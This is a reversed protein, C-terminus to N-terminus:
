ERNHFFQLIKRIRVKDKATLKQCQAYDKYFTLRQKKSLNYKGLKDLCALDKIIRYELFPRYWKMGSPCDILFIDPHEDKINVMINRWKFDNHAFQHQHMIRASRAIQTSIHAVWDARKLLQPYQEAIDALDCTDLLEETILLGRHTVWGKTEQGYAVVSAVPIDLSKFWLLNQWESQIKSQGLYRQIKKRSINYKKLYYNKNDITIKYVQSLPSKAIFEGQYHYANDFNSLLKGLRTNKYEPVITWVIKKRFFYNVLSKLNM